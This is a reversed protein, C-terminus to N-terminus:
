NPLVSVCNGAVFLHDEKIKIEKYGYFPVEFEATIDGKLDGYCAGRSGGSRNSYSFVRELFMGAEGIAYFRFVPFIGSLHIAFLHIM